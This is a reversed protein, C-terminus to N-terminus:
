FEVNMWESSATYYPRYMCCACNTVDHSETSYSVSHLYTVIGCTGYMHQCPLIYVPLGLFPCVYWNLKHVDSRAQFHKMRTVTTLISGLVRERSARLTPHGEWLTAFAQTNFHKNRKRGPARGGWFVGQNRAQKGDFKKWIQELM